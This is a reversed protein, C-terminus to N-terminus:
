NSSYSNHANKNVNNISVNDFYLYENNKCVYDYMQQNPSISSVPKIPNGKDDFTEIKSIAALLDGYIIQAGLVLQMSDIIKRISLEVYEWYKQDVVGINLNLQQTVPTAPIFLIRYGVMKYTKLYEGALRVEIPTMAVPNNDTTREHIYYTHMTCCRPRVWQDIVSETVEGSSNYLPSVMTDIFAVSLSDDDHERVEIDTQYQMRDRFHTVIDVSTDGLEAVYSYSQTTLNIRYETGVSPTGLTFKVVQPEGEDIDPFASKILPHSEIIYQHDLTSVMRRQTSYYLPAMQKIVENTDGNTGYHGVQVFKFRSDLEMENATFGELVGDTEIWDVSVERAVAVGYDNGRDSISITTDVTTNSYDIVKNHVVYYEVDKTTDVQLGDVKVLVKNNDVSILDQPLLDVEVVDEDVPVQYVLSNVHGISVEVYDLKEITLPSGWYILDYDKYKGLVQGNYLTITPVDNYRLQLVPATRRNINYGFCRAIKYISQSRTAETLRTQKSEAVRKMNDYSAYGAILDVIFALNGSPIKNMIEDKNSLNDIYAYINDRIQDVSVSHKNILEM